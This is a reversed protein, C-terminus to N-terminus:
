RVTGAKVSIFNVRAAAAAAAAACFQSHDRKRGDREEMERERLRRRGGAMIAFINGKWLPKSLPINFFLKTPRTYEGILM